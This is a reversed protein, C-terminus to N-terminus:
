FIDYIRDRMVVIRAGGSLYDFGSAVLEQVENPLCYRSPMFYRVVDGPLKHPAVAALTSMDYVPRTVDIQAWYSYALNGKAHLLARQGIGSEADVARINEVPSMKVSESLARQDALNPVRVQMLVDTPQDMRYDLQVDLNLIM